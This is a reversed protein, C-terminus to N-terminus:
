INEYCRSAITQSNFFNSHPRTASNQQRRIQKCINACSQCSDKDAEKVAVEYVLLHLKLRLSVVNDGIRFSSHSGLARLDTAKKLKSKTYKKEEQTESDLLFVKFISHLLYLLSFFFFRDTTRTKTFGSLRVLPSFVLSYITFHHHIKFRLARPQPLPTTIIFSFNLLRLLFKM